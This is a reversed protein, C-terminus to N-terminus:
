DRRAPTRGALAYAGMVVRWIDADELRAAAPVAFGPLPRSPNWAPMASAWPWSEAPLGAGGEKVRWFVYNEPLQAITGADTFDIPAPELAAAFPGKGDAQDGHCWACWTAFLERGRQVNEESWPLPNRLGEYEAPLAPHVTRLEAPPAARGSTAEYAVAAACSAVAVLLAARVGRLLPSGRALALARLPGLFARWGEDTISVYVLIGLVVVALYMRELSAPLPAGVATGPFEVTTVILHLRLPGSVQGTVRSTLWPIGAELFLWAGVLVLAAVALSPLRRRATGPARPPTM